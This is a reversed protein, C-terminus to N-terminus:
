ESDLSIIMKLDSKARMSASIEDGNNSNRDVSGGHGCGTPCTVISCNTNHSRRIPILTKRQQNM